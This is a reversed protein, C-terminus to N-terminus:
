QPEGLILKNVSDIILYIFFLVSIIAYLFITMISFLFKKVRKM